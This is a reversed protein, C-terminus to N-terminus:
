AAAEISKRPRYSRVFRGSTTGPNCIPCLRAAGGCNKLRREDARGGRWLRAVRWTIGAANVVRMLNACKPASTRHENLRHELDVASGIYHKAHKFPQDFHILYIFKTQSM